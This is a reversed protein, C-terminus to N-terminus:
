SPPSAAARADAWTRADIADLVALQAQDVAWTAYDLADAADEEAAEADEEAMKVDHQDRKRAIRDQLDQMKAQADAQMSKWQSQARGVAQGAKETVATQRAAIDAKARDIRAKVQENTEKRAQGFSSKLDAVRQELADIQYSVNM